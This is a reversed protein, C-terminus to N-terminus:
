GDISIDFFSKCYCSGTQWGLVDMLSSHGNHLFVVSVYSKKALIPYAPFCVPHSEM